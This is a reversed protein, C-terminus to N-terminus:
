FLDDLIDKTAASGKSPEDATTRDADSGADTTGPEPGDNVHEAAPPGSPTPDFHLELREDNGDGVVEARFGLGCQPCTHKKQVNAM